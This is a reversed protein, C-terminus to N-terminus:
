AVVCRVLAGLDVGEGVSLDVLQESLAEVATTALFREGRLQFVVALEEDDFFGAQVIDGEPVVLRAGRLAGDANSM